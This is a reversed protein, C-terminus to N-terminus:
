PVAMRAAGARTAMPMTLLREALRQYSQAIFHSPASSVAPVRALLSERAVERSPAVHAYCELGVDM